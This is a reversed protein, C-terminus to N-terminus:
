EDKKAEDEIDDKLDGYGGQVKGLTEEVKGEAELRKNGTIKGTVKKATGKAEKIRGKVQDKNM